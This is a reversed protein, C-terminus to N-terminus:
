AAHNTGEKGRAMAIGLLLSPLFLLGVGIPRLWERDLHLVAVFDQPTIAITMVLVAVPFIIPRYLPLQLAGAFLVVGSHFLVTLRVAAAFFWFMVILAETRQLFRGLNILRAMNFMPFSQQAADPAGFTMVVVAATATTTLGFLLLGILGSLRFTRSERFADGLILLIILEGAMGTYYLGTNLTQNLGHGWFPYLRATDARPLNLLLVLLAGLAILPLLIQAARAAPEIGRYSAYVVCFVVVIILISPPTQPLITMIFTESFLRVTISATTILWAAAGLCVLPGLLPGLVQESIEALGVGQFRKALAAAPLFLLIAAATLLLAAQWAAPGAAEILLQPYQVFLKASLTAFVLTIGQLLGIHGESHIM